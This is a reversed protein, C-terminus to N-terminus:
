NIQNDSKTQILGLMKRSFPGVFLLQLPLAAIINMKWATLYAPLLGSSLNGEFLIGFLSMLTVMGIVMLCSITLIVQVKREKNIPLKFAIKKAFVGVIFVDLILAVIFGPVLGVLLATWSFNNHLLLNYLSMGFVMLFCMLTTFIIGEKKNTPM